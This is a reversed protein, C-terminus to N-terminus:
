FHRMLRDVKGGGLSKNIMILEGVNEMTLLGVLRGSEMVPLTAGRKISMTELTSTLVDTANVPNCDRSMVDGVLSEHQRDALAKILDDRRLIGLLDHDRM